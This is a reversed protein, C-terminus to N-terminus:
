YSTPTHRRGESRRDHFFARSPDRGPEPNSWIPHTDHGWTSGASEASGTSGSGAASTNTGMGAPRGGMGAAGFLGGATPGSLGTGGASGPARAQNLSQGLMGPM